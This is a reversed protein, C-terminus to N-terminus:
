DSVYDGDIILDVLLGKVSDVSPVYELVIVEPRGVWLDEPSSVIKVEPNDIFFHVNALNSDGVNSVSLEVKLTHGVHVIGLDIVDLLVGDKQIIIDPAM